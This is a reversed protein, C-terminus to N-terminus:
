RRWKGPGSVSKNGRVYFRWPKDKYEQAYDINIRPSTGIEEGPALGGPLLFVRDKLLDAGYVAKDLGLARCLKGPGRCLTAPDADPAAKLRERMVDLGTVPELARILCAQPKDAPGCVANICWYMGYILYIYAHGKPGYMAENRQTRRGGSTHAGLDDPGCYAEAEVIRGGTIVGDHQSFFFQGIIDHCVELTPRHFFDRPLRNTLNDPTLPPVWQGRAM